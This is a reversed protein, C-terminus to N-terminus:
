VKIHDYAIRYSNVAKEFNVIHGPYDSYLVSLLKISDSNRTILLTKSPDVSLNESFLEFSTDPFCRSFDNPLTTNDLEHFIIRDIDSISSKLHNIYQLTAPITLTRMDSIQDDPSNKGYWLQLKRRLQVAIVWERRQVARAIELEIRAHLWNDIMSRISNKQNESYRSLGSDVMNLSVLNELADRMEDGIMGLAWSMNLWNGNRSLRTKIVRNERYFPVGSFIISGTKSLNYMWQHCQYIRKTLGMSDLINERRYIAIEPLIFKSFMFNVLDNNQSPEFRVPQSIGFYRHLEIENEDDYSIWDAYIAAIAQDSQMARVYNALSDVILSDDDALYVIFDGSCKRFANMINTSSEMSNRRFLRIEPYHIAKSEVMQCTNDTSCNDSIVIEFSFDLKKLDDLHRDLCFELLDCRNYTPIAISLVPRM